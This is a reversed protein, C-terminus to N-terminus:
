IDNKKCWAEVFNHEAVPSLSTTSFSLPFKLWQLLTWHWFMLSIWRSYKGSIIKRKGTEMNRNQIWWPLPLQTLFNLTQWAHGKLLTTWLGMNTKQRLNMLIIQILQWCSNWTVAVVAFCFSQYLSSANCYSQPLTFLYQFHKTSICLNRPDGM